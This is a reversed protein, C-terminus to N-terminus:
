VIQRSPTTPAVFFSHSYTRLAASGTFRLAITRKSSCSLGLTTLQPSPLQAPESGAVDDVGAVEFEIKGGIGFACSTPPQSQILRSLRMGPDLADAYASGRGLWFKTM